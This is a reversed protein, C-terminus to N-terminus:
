VFNMARLLAQFRPEGRLPDLKPEVKIVAMWHTREAFGRELWNLANEKEGLAVYVEAVDVPSVYRRGTAALVEQLLTRAEEERGAAAQAAALRAVVMPERRTLRVAESSSAISEAHRGLIARM